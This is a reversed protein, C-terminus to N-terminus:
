AYGLQEKDISLVFIINPVTFLHKIIELLKVAYNPRCRDLEDVFFIINANKESDQANQEIFSELVSKFEKIADKKNKYNKIDNELIHKPSVDSIGKLHNSAGSGLINDGLIKLTGIGINSA